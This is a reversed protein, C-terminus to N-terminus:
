RPEGQPALVTPGAAEPRDHPDALRLAPRATPAFDAMCRSQMGYEGALVQYHRLVQDLLALNHELDVGFNHPHWWLHFVGGSRAAATMAAKIRALRLALLPRQRASWPYLFLSGPLQVLGNHHRPRATAKGSLPLCADAFRALRGAVGGPVADGRRYLWHEANGRYVEIGAQPLVPIFEDVIQNRPLVLSTCGSGLDSAM